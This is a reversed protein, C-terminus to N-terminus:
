HGAVWPQKFKEIFFKLVADKSIQHSAVGRTLEVLEDESCALTAGNMRLFAIATAAGVRKNGDRFGHNSALHSLYAGAMEALGPHLLQGGFSALPQAIASEILKQDLIEPAGGYKEIQNAHIRIVQHLEFFRIKVTM